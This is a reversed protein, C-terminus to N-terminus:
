SRYSANISVYEHTLDSTIIYSGANGEKLKITVKFNPKKFVHAFKSEPQHQVGKSYVKIGDFFLEINDPDFKVGARGAAGIIRGWNADEGYFATKSLQSNGITRAIREADKETRAGTVEVKVVKTAGEGDKVILEAIEMCVETLSKLFKNYLSSKENIEVNGLLGNSMIFASDNTSTDGDVIIKNFSNNMSTKFAKKLASKGIAIDTMIFTLMTAMDPCIMGAGKGVASITGTKSGIKLSRTSTKIFKDTTLIAAATDELNTEGLSSVLDPIAKEIKETALPQGIVGTSSPIVLEEDINLKKAIANATFVSDQYGKKGTCANANGSNIIIAQCIGKKIRQQGLIVPAAKVLNKTFVASTNCPVKSFILALDKKGSKKLGSSIGSFYFGSVKSM